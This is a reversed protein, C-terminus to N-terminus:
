SGRAGARARLISAAMVLDDPTTIKLNLPSGAVIPVPGAYREHLASDDTPRFNEARAAELLRRFVEVRFVQPTQASWLVGRDLTSEV